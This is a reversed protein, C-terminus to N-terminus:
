SDRVRPLTLIFDEVLADWRAEPVQGLVDGVPHGADQLHAGGTGSIKSNLDMISNELWRQALKGHLLNKLNGEMGPSHVELLWGVEYPDALLRRPNRSIEENVDVVEGEIPSLLEFRHNGRTIAWGKEGQRLWRGRAPLEISDIEGLLRTSFDDMGVRVRRGGEKMAWGHGPHFSFAAPMKFGSVIEMPIAADSESQIKAIVKPKEKRNQYYFDVLIFVVMTALVLIAVM